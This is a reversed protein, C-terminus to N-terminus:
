RNSLETISSDSCNLYELDVCLSIDIATLPHNNRCHLELLTPNNKCDIIEIRNYSCDLKRLNPMYEIGQLSTIGMNRCYIVSISLAEDFSIEGDGDKDFHRIIYEKFKQDPFDIIQIDM